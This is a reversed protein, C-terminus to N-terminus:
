DFRGVGTRQVQQEAIALLDSAAHADDPYGAVGFALALRTCPKAVSRLIKALGAVTREAVRQADKGTIDHLLLTIARDGILVSDSPPLGELLAQEVVPLGLLRTEDEEDGDEGAKADVMVVQVIALPTNFIQALKIANAIQALRWYDNLRFDPRLVMRFCCGAGAESDLALRGGHMEVIDRVISLGIGMNGEVGNPKPANPSEALGEDLSAAEDAVLGAGTDRVVLEVFAKGTVDEFGRAGVSVSRRAPTYRIANVVLNGLAQTLLNADAHCWVASQAADYQLEVGSKRATPGFSRVIDGAIAALNVWRAAVRVAGAGVRSASLTGQVLRHMRASERSATDLLRRQMETQKGNQEERLLEIAEGVSTLANRLEHSISAIPNARGAWRWDRRPGPELTMHVFRGEPPRDVRTLTARLCGYEPHELQMRRRTAGGAAHDRLLRKLGIPLGECYLTPKPGEDGGNSGLLIRATENAYLEHGSSDSVVVGCSLLAIALERPNVLVSEASGAASPKEPASGTLNGKTDLGTNGM